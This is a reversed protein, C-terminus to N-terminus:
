IMKDKILSGMPATLVDENVNRHHYKSDEKKRWFLMTLIDVEYMTIKIAQPM